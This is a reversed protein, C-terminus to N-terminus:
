EDCVVKSVVVNSVKNVKLNYYTINSKCNDKPIGRSRDLPSFRCCM